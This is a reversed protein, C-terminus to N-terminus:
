GSNRISGWWAQLAAVSGHGKLMRRYDHPNKMAAVYVVNKYQWAGTSWGGSPSEPHLPPVPPLTALKEKAPLMFVLIQDNGPYLFVRAKEGLSSSYHVQSYQPSSSLFRTSDADRKADYVYEQWQGPDLQKAEAVVWNALFQQDVKSWDFTSPRSFWSVSILLSAAIAIFAMWRRRPITNSGANLKAQRNSRMETSTESLDNASVADDVIIRVKTQQATESQNPCLQKLLRGELGDSKPVRNIAGSLVEDWASIRDFELNLITESSSEIGEGRLPPTGDTNSALGLDRVLENLERKNRCSEAANQFDREM